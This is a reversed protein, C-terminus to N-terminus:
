FQFNYLWYRIFIFLKLLFELRFQYQSLISYFMPTVPTFRKSLLYFVPLRSAIAFWGSIYRKRYTTGFDLVSMLSGLTEVIWVLLKLKRSNAPKMVSYAMHLTHMIVLVAWVSCWYDLTSNICLPLLLCLFITDAHENCQSVFKHQAGDSVHNNRFSLLSSAICFGAKLGALSQLVLHYVV